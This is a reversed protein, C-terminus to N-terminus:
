SRKLETMHRSRRALVALGAGWLLWTAPEPVASVGIELAGGGYGFSVAYGAPLGSVDTTLSALGTITGTGVILAWVTGAVPVFGDIFAIHLVGGAFSSTGNLVLQDYQGAGSGAIELELVGSDFRLTGDLSLRGPSLGPCLTGGHVVVSTAGLSGNGCVRGGDIQMAALSLIGNVATNGADQRYSGAGSVPGDLRVNGSNDFSGDVRLRGSSGLQFSGTNMNVFSGVQLDRDNIWTGANHAAQVNMNGYGSQLMWGSNHLTGGNLPGLNSFSGANSVTGSNSVFGYNVFGANAAVAILGSNIISANFAGTGNELRGAIRLEGANSLTGYNHNAIELAQMVAGSLVDLQGLNTFYTVGTFSSADAIFSRRNTIRYARLQGGNVVVGANDLSTTTLDSTSGRNDVRGQDFVFVRDASFTGSNTLWGYNHVSTLVTVRGFNTLSGENTIGDASFTGRNQFTGVVGFSGSVEFRGANLQSYGSAVRILGTSQLTGGELLAITGWQPDGFIIQRRVSLTGSNILTGGRLDVGGFIELTGGNEFVGSLVLSGPPAPYVGGISFLGNNVITGSSSLVGGLSVTGGNIFMSTNNLLGGAAIEFTGANNITNTNSMLGRLTLTGANFVGGGNFLSGGAEVEASGYNDFQAGGTISSMGGLVLTSANANLLRSDAEFTQTGRLTMTGSNQLYGRNTFAASSELTQVNYFDGNVIVNGATSRLIGENNTVSGTQLTGTNNLQAGPLIYLSGNDVVLSAANDLSNYVFLAGGAIRLEATPGSNGLTGYNLLTDSITMQGHNQWTGYNKSVFGASVFMAENVLTAGLQNYLYGNSQLIGGEIHLEGRNDLVFRNTLNANPGVLRIVGSANNLLTSSNDVLRTNVLVGANAFSVRSLDYAADIQLAADNNFTGLNNVFGNLGTIRFYGANSIQGNNTLSVTNHFSAAAHNVILGRNDIGADFTIMGDPDNSGNIFLTPQGNGGNNLTGGLQIVWLGSLACVTSQLLNVTQGAAIPLSTDLRDCPVVSASVVVPVAQLAIAATIASIRARTRLRRPLVVAQGRLGGSIRERKM